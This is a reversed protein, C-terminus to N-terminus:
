YRNYYDRIRCWLKNSIEQTICRIIEEDAPPYDQRRNVLQKDSESLAREDGTYTSFETYWDHDGHLNDTWLWGGENDRINLQLFGDSHLSRRITTIKANVKGYIKVISDPKYVIEKIVVEKTVERTSRNDQYRGINVNAFRLDIVQDVRINKMSAEGASYYKVFENGTNYRLNQLLQQDFSVVGYNFSSFRFGSQDVPLVVVNTVALDYAENMKERISIDGSKFRLAAQFERYANKFSQRDHKDMWRLGREFRTDGAKEAYTIIYANYDVPQVLEFVQPAKRIADYLRQLSVYENYIWEYRLENSSNSYNSIRSEHDNVAYRYADLIVAQLKADTPDKQLKKAAVEVAEDYNGKQYLKSASKCSVLFTVASFIFITYLKTKM